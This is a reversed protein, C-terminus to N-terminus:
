FSEKKLLLNYLNDEIYDTYNFELIKNKSILSNITSAIHNKGTGSEGNILVTM